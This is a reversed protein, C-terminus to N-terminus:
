RTEGQRKKRQLNAVFKEIMRYQVKDLNVFQMGAHLSNSTEHQFTHTIKIRCQIQTDDPLYMNSIVTDNRLKEDYGKGLPFRVCMGGVSIDLLQGNGKIGKESQLDVSINYTPSVQARFAQRRQRYKVSEPYTFVLCTTGKDTDTKKFIARFQVHVGELQTDLDLFGLNGLIQNGNPPHLADIVLEDADPDAKLLISSFADPVDPFTITVLNHKDVIPRLLTNIRPKATIIQYQPDYNDFSSEEKVM